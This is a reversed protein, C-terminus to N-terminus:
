KEATKCLQSLGRGEAMFDKKILAEIKEESLGQRCDHLSKKLADHEERSLKTHRYPLERLNPGYLIKFGPPRFEPYKPNPSKLVAPELLIWDSRQGTLRNVQSIVEAEKGSLTASKFGQIDTKVEMPEGNVAFTGKMKHGPVNLAPVCSSDINQLTRQARVGIRYALDWQKVFCPSEQQSLRIVFPYKAGTKQDVYDGPVIEAWFAVHQPVPKKDDAVSQNKKWWFRDMVYSTQFLRDTNKPTLRRPFFVRGRGEPAKLYEAQIKESPTEAEEYRVYAQSKAVAEYRLYIQQEDFDFVSLDGENVSSMFFIAPFVRGLWSEEVLDFRGGGPLGARSRYIATQFYDLLDVSPVNAEEEVAPAVVDRVVKVDEPPPFVSIENVDPAAATVPAAAVPPKEAEPASSKNTFYLGVAILLLGSLIIFRSSM